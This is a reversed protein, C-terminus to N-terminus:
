PALLSRNRGEWIVCEWKLLLRRPIMGMVKRKETGNTVKVFSMEALDLSCIASCSAEQLILIPPPWAKRHNTGTGPLSEDRM